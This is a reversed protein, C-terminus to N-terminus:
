KKTDNAYCMQEIEKLKTHIMPMVCKSPKNDANAWDRKIKYTDDAYCMQEIEKLRTHIMQM